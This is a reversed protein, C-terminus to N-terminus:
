KWILMHRRAAAAQGQSPCGLLPWAAQQMAVVQFVFADAIQAEELIHAVDAAPMHKAADIRFGAVGIYKLRSMYAALRSCVAPSETDLDALGLLDCNQVNQRAPM